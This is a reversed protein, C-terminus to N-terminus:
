RYNSTFTSIRSWVTVVFEDWLDDRFWRGYHLSYLFPFRSVKRCSTVWRFIRFGRAIWTTSFSLDNEVLERRNSRDFRQFTAALHNIAVTIRSDPQITAKDRTEQAYRKGNARCGGALLFLHYFPLITGRERANDRLLRSSNLRKRKDRDNRERDRQQAANREFLWNGLSRALAHQTLIRWNKDRNWLLDNNAWEVFITAGISLVPRLSRCLMPFRTSKKSRRHSKQEM